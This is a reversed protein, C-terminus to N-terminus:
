RELQEGQRFIAIEEAWDYGRISQNTIIYFKEEKHWTIYINNLRLVLESIDQAILFAQKKDETNLDMIM